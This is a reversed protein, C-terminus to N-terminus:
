AVEVLDTIAAAHYTDAVADMKAQELKSNLDGATTINISPQKSLGVLFSSRSSPNTQNLGPPYQVAGGVWQTGVDLDWPRGSLILSAAIQSQVEIEDKIAKMRPHLITALFSPMGRGLHANAWPILVGFMLKFLYALRHGENVCTVPYKVTFSM